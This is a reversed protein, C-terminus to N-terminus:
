LINVKLNELMALPSVDNMNTDRLSLVELSVFSSIGDLENLGCSNLTLIRINKFSVGLDRISHLISNDLNLTMLNELIDGINDLSQLTTDISIRLDCIKSLDDLQLYHKLFNEGIVNNLVHVFEDEVSDFKKENRNGRGNSASSTTPRPTPNANSPITRIIIKRDSIPMELISLRSHILIRM